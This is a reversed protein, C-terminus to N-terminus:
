GKLIFKELEFLANLCYAIEWRYLFSMLSCTSCFISAFMIGLLIFIGIFSITPQQLFLQRLLVSLPCITGVCFVFVFEWIMFGILKTRSKTTSVKRCKTDIQLPHTWLFTNYFVNWTEIAMWRLNTSM